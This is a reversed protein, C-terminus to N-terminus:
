GLFRRQRQDPRQDPRWGGAWHLNATLPFAERLEITGTLSIDTLHLEDSSLAAATLHEITIRKHWLETLRAEVHIDTLEVALAENRYVIRDATLGTLVAGGQGEVRLEGPIFTVAQAALWQGGRTTGLLLWLSGLAVIVLAVVVVILGRLLRSM